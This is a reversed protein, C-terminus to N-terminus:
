LSAKSSKPMVEKWMRAFTGGAKELLMTPTDFEVVEGFSLVLIQDYDIITGLRHAVTLVTKKGETSTTKLLDKIFDDTREDMSSTAEDLVMIKTPAALVRAICLLQRQGQSLNEGQEAISM